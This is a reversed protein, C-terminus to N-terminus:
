IATRRRYLFILLVGFLLLGSVIFYNNSHEVSIPTNEGILILGAWFFPISLRSPAEELYDLKALRLAEDKPLGRKCYSLFSQTIMSTSEDPISWLSAVISSCGAYAFGRSLSMIGEGNQIEGYGTNCAGLITLDANLSLGYLEAATLQNDELTDSNTNFILKSLLPDKDDAWGHMALHLIKYNSANYKFNIESADEGIFADGRFAKAMIQVTSRAARLDNMSYAIRLVIDDTNSSNTTYYRPAFGGYDKTNKPPNRKQQEFYLSSAYSYSLTYQHILYSPSQGTSKFQKVPLIEFPIVGIPGSPVIIIKKINPQSRIFSDPWIQQYVQHGSALVDVFEPQSLDTQTISKRFKNIASQITDPNDLQTFYIDNKTICTLYANKEGIFYSLIANDSQILDKRVRKTSPITPQYKLRHYNPYSNEIQNILRAYKTQYEFYRNKYYDLLGPNQQSENEVILSKYFNINIRWEKERSILSDPLNGFQLANNSSIQQILTNAKSQEMYTFAQNAYKEKGTINYLQLCNHIAGEYVRTIIENFNIKDEYSLFSRGVRQVISDAHQFLEQNKLLWSNEKSQEFLQSQINAKDLLIELYFIQDYLLYTENRFDSSFQIALDYHHLAKKYAKQKEYCKGKQGHVNGIEYYDDGHVTRKLQLSSDFCIQAREYQGLETYIRGFDSYNNALYSNIEEPNAHKKLISKTQDAFKLAKDYSKLDIYTSTINDYKASASLYRKQNLDVKAGNLFAQIAKEYEKQHYYVIGLSNYCFGIYYHKESLSKQIIGIAKEIYEKAQFFEGLKDYTIGINLYTLALRPNDETFLKEHIEVAKLYYDLANFADGKNIYVTALNHILNTKFNLDMITMKKRSWIKAEEIIAQSEDYYGLASYAGGINLCFSTLYTSDKLPLTKAYDYAKQFYDLAKQYAEVRYHNMGVTNYATAIKINKENKFASSYWALVSDMVFFKNIDNNNLINIKRILHYSDITRFNLKGYFENALQYAEKAAEKAKDYQGTSYM